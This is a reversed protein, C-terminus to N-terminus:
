KRRVGQKIKTLASKPVDFSALAPGMQQQSTAQMRSVGSVGRQLFSARHQSAVQKLRNMAVAGADRDSIYASISRISGRDCAPMENPGCGIFKWRRLIVREVVKEGRIAGVVQRDAVGAAIVLVRGRALRAAVRGGRTHCEDLVIVDSAAVDLALQLIPQGVCAVHDGM